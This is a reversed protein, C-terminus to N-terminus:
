ANEPSRAFLLYARAGRFPASCDDPLIGRSRAAAAEPPALAVEDCAQVPRWAEPRDCGGRKCTRAGRTVKGRISQITAAGAGFGLMKSDNKREPGIACNTRPIRASNEMTEQDIM